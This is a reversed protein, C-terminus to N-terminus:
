ARARREAPRRTLYRGIATTDDDDDRAAVAACRAKAAALVEEAVVRETDSLTDLGVEVTPRIMLTTPM